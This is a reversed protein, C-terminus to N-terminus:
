RNKSIDRLKLELESVLATLRKNEWEKEALQAELLKINSIANVLEPSANALLEKEAKQDEIKQLYEERLAERIEAKEREKKLWLERAQNNREILDDRALELDLDERRNSSDVIEELQEIAYELSRSWEIQCITVLLKARTM